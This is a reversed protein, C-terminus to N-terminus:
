RQRRGQVNGAQQLTDIRFCFASIILGRRVCTCSFGCRSIWSWRRKDCIGGTRGRRRWRWCSYSARSRRGRWCSYSTWSRRWRWCGCSTRSRRRRRCSPHSGGGWCRYSRRSCWLANRADRRCCGGRRYNGLRCCRLRSRFTCYWIGRAMSMDVHEGGTDRLAALM